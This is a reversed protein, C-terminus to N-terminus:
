LGFQDHKSLDYHKPVLRVFFGVVYKGAVRPGRRSIDTERLIWGGVEGMVVAVMM